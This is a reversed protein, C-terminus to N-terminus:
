FSDVISPSVLTRFRWPISCNISDSCAALKGVLTMTEIEIVELSYVILTSVMNPITDQLGHAFNQPCMSAIGISQTAPSALFENEDTGTRAQCLRGVQSLLQPM